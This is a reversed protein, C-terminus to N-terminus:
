RLLIMKKTQVSKGSDLKYFYVGTGVEKGSSDKGDWVAKHVGQEYKKNILSKIKQGKINYISIEVNSEQPISFSITTNPNFPNPYNSLKCNNIILEENGIEVQPEKMFSGTGDNFLIRVHHLDRSTVAIDLYGNNDFDASTLKFGFMCPGIHYMDPESFTGDQNNFCIFINEEDTHDLSDFIVSHYVIDPYNDNNYDTIDLISSLPPLELTDGYVFEENGINYGIMFDCPIGIFDGSIFFFIDNLNDNNMDKIFCQAWNRIMLTDQEFVSGTNYFIRPPTADGTTLVIDTYEDENIRGADLHMINSETDFYVEENFEGYGNNHLIGWYSDINTKYFIIDNDGDNNTDTIKVKEYSSASNIVISEGFSGDGNNHYYVFNPSFKTVLDPLNDNDINVCKLFHINDIEIINSIFDGDDNNTLITIREQPDYYSGQSGVILDIDGDCDIDSTTIDYPYNPVPYELSNIILYYITLLFIIFITIFKQRNIKM